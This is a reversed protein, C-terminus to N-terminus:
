EVPKIDAAETNVDYDVGKVPVYDPTDHHTRAYCDGAQATYGDWLNHDKRYQFAIQRFTWGADNRSALEVNDNDSDNFLETIESPPMTDAVYDLFKFQPGTWSEDGHYWATPDFLDCRIGLCCFKEGLDHQDERKLRGQAQKYKGGELAALWELRNARVDADVTVPDRLSTIM